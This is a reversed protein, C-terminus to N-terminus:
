NLHIAMASPDAYFNHDMKWLSRIVSVKRSDTRLLESDIIGFFTENSNKRASQWAEDRCIVRMLQEHSCRGYQELISNLVLITQRSMRLTIPFLKKRQISMANLEVCYPGTERSVFSGELIPEGFIAYGEKLSLYLLDHIKQEDVCNEYNQEILRQELYQMCDVASDTRKSM